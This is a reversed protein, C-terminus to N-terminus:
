AAPSALLAELEEWQTYLEGVRAQVQQQQQSLELAKSADAGVALMESDLRALEAELEEIQAEVQQMKKPAQSIAKQLQREAARAAKEAAPDRPPGAKAAADADINAVGRDTESFDAPRLEREQVSVAGNAVYAVHSCRLAECFSRDHSIVVVIGEYEELAALLAEIAVADLHNSPEDFLVLNCPILCFVALAVRAKEGGSLAGIRRTAKEGTLGLSGMVTRIRANEISPDDARVAAAVYEYAGQEQPLEQALDQAFVGLRLREDAHRTGGGLALKGALAALLTSKGAGNPGRIVLRMGKRLELDVGSLIDQTGQPHRLDV